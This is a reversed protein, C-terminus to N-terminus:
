TDVAGHSSHRARAFAKAVRRRDLKSVRRQARNDLYKRQHDFPKNKFAYRELWIDEM